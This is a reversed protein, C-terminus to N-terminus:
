SPAEAEYVERASDGHIIIIIIIIIVTMTTTTTTTTSTTTTTTTTTLITILIISINHSWQKLITSTLFVEPKRSAMNIVQLM